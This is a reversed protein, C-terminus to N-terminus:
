VIKLLLLLRLLWFSTLCFEIEVAVEILWLSIRLIISSLRVVVHSVTSGSDLGPAVIIVEDALLRLLARFAMM